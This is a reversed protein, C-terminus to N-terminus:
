SAHNRACAQGYFSHLTAYNFFLNYPCGILQSPRVRRILAHVNVTAVLVRPPVENLVKIKNWGKYVM